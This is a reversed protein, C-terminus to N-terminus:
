EEYFVVEGSVNFTNNVFIKNSWEDIKEKIICHDEVYTKASSILNKTDSKSSEILVINILTAMLLAIIVLKLTQNM